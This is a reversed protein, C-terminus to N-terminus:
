QRSLWTELDSSANFELLAEGLAELQELSLQEIRERNAPSILGIRRTLQKLILSREGLLMGEERGEKRGEERAEERIEQYVRTEKFSTALGLMKVIEERSLQPFKYVMITQILQQLTQEQPLSPVQELIQRAREPATPQPEIILKLIQVSLTNDPTNPLEDLFILQTHHSDLLVQYAEKQQQELNRDSFIVTTRWHPYDPHHRLFTFVEGFLRHYLNEDPYFQVEVFYVPQAPSNHAPLFVGDVRFATQKVEISDFPLRRHNGAGVLEF